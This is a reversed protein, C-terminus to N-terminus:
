YNRQVSFKALLVLAEKYESPPLVNLLNIAKIAEDDARQETYEIAKTKQVIAYVDNFADRKGNKIADIIVQAESESGNQIAYIL